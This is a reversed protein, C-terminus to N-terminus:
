FEWGFNEDLNQDFFLYFNGYFIGMFFCSVCQCVFVGLVSSVFNYYVQLVITVCKFCHSELFM